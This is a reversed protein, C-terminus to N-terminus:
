EATDIDQRHEVVADGFDVRQIGPSFVSVSYDYGLAVTCCRHICGESVGAKNWHAHQFFVAGITRGQDTMDGYAHRTHLERGARQAVSKRKGNTGGDGGRTIIRIATCEDQEGVALDIFSGIPLRGKETIM